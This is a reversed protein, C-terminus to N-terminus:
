RRSGRVDIDSLLLVGSDVGKQSNSDHFSQKAYDLASYGRSDRMHAEHTRLIEVAEIHGHYSASMLATWGSDKCLQSEIPALIRVCEVYNRSAALMLSTWGKKMRLGGEREALLEVIGVSNSQVAHYLATKDENNRLGAEALLLSAAETSGHMAAYMLATSGWGDHMSLEALLLRVCETHDYYAAIMLATLNTRTITSGDSALLTLRTQCQIGLQSLHQKVLGPDGAAAALMLETREGVCGARSPVYIKLNKCYIWDVLRPLVHTRKEEVALIVDSQDLRDLLLRLLETDDLLIADRLSVLQILSEASCRTRLLNWISDRRAIDLSTVISIFARNVPIPQSTMARKVIASLRDPPLDCSELVWPLDNPRAEFEALLIACSTHGARMAYDFATSGQDDSAGSEILLLQVCGVHGRSSALMLATIGSPDRIGIECLLQSVYDARGASAAMMLASRGGFILGTDHIYQEVSQAEGNRVATMLLSEGYTNKGMRLPLSYQVGNKILYQCLWPLCKVSKAECAFHLSETAALSTTINSINDRFLDANDQVILNLIEKQTITSSVTSALPTNTVYPM